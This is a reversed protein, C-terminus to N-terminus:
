YRECEGGGGAGVIGLKEFTLSPLSLVVV